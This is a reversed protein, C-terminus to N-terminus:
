VKRAPTNMWQTLLARNAASPEVRFFGDNRVSITRDTTLKRFFDPLEKWSINADDGEVWEWDSQPVDALLRQSFWVERGQDWQELAHSAFSQRWRTIGQSAIEVTDIVTFRPLAIEDRLPNARPLRYIDDNLTTVYIIAGPEATTNLVAVRDRTAGMPDGATKILNEALNLLPFCILFATAILVPIRQQRLYALATAFGLFAFPFVPMFREPASPEFVFMSFGLLPVGGALLVYLAPRNQRYLVWVLALLALYFAGLKGGLALLVSPLRVANYPDHFLWRKLSIMNKGLDWVSRPVGTVARTVTRTQANGNDSEMVWHVFGSVSRVGRGAAVTGFSVVTVVSLALLFYLILRTRAQRGPEQRGPAAPWFALMALPALGTLSYPFWLMCALAFTCGGAMAYWRGKELAVTLLALTLASLALAPVYPAGSHSYNLFSITGSMALVALLAPMPRAAVRRLVFLLAFLAVISFVFSTQILFRAAAEEPTDGFWTAYLGGFLSLGLDGWPRWFLHNFDWFDSRAGARHRLIDGVYRMTDGMYEQAFLWYCFLFFVLPILYAAAKKM